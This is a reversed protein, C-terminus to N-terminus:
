GRSRAKPFFWLVVTQGRYDSLKAPERLPGFRTMGRIAFDPAMDGVAPVPLPPAAAPSQTPQQAGASAALALALCSVPLAKLNMM